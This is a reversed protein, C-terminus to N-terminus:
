ALLFVSKVTSGMHHPESRSAGIFVLPQIFCHFLVAINYCTVHPADRNAVVNYYSQVHYIGTVHNTIDWFIVLRAEPIWEM